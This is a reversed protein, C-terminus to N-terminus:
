GNPLDDYIKKKAAANQVAGNYAKEATDVEAKTDTEKKKAEELQKQAVELIKALSGIDADKPADKTNSVAANADEVAQTAKTYADKATSLETSSGVAKTATAIATNTDAISQKAKVLSATAVASPDAFGENTKMFYFLGILLLIFICLSGIWKSTKNM